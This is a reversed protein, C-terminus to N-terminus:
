SLAMPAAPYEDWTRGGLMRGSRKKNKGGWQKFFFAVQQERCVHQIEEVWDQEIPRAAPGSEGGVIAWQIGTLDTRGVPGLLPEFSIFRVAAPTQRLENIRDLHDANEVSTGLWVNQLTPFNAGRLVDRMRDPRKTLVQFQHWTARRMVDWVRQIHEVALGDQFLDSMSNVFIRQPRTWELPATLAYEDFNIRGTWVARGGSRRTTGAYKEHGMAQLRAAMRMAYCNTCGPSVVTCGAVPNWTAETWEIDSAAM